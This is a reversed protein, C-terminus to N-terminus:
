ATKKVWEKIAPKQFYNFFKKLVNDEDCFTLVVEGQISGEKVHVTFTEHSFVFAYRKNNIIAWMMNGLSGEQSRVQLDSDEDKAAIILAVLSMSTLMVSHAHHDTRELVGKFYEQFDNITKITAM